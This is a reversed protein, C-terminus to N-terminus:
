LGFIFGDEKDNREITAGFYEVTEWGAHCDELIVVCFTVCGVTFVWMCVATITYM